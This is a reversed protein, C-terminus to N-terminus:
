HSEGPVNRDATNWREVREALTQRGYRIHGAKAQGAATVEITETEVDLVPASCITLLASFENRNM